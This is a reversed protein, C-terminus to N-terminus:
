HWYECDLTAPRVTVENGRQKNTLTTSHNFLGDEDTDMNEPSYPSFSCECLFTLPLLINMIFIYFYVFMLQSCINCLLFFDVYTLWSNMYLLMKSFVTVMPGRRDPSPPLFTLHYIINVMQLRMVKPRWSWQLLCLLHAVWCRPASVSPSFHAFVVLNFIVNKFGTVHDVWWM